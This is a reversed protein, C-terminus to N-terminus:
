EAHTIYLENDAIKKKKKKSLNAIRLYINQTFDTLVEVSKIHIRKCKMIITSIKFHCFIVSGVYFKRNYSSEYTM